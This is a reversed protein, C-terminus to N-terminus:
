GSSQPSRQKGRRAIAYKLKALALLTPKLEPPSEFFNLRYLRSSVGAPIALWNLPDYDFWDGNVPLVMHGKPLPGHLEEWLVKHKCVRSHQPHSPNVAPMRVVIRGKHYYETGVPLRREHGELWGRRQCLGSIDGRTLCTHGFTARLGRLIDIRRMNQHAQIYDIEEQLWKVRRRPTRVPRCLGMRRLQDKLNYLTVDPREFRSQFEALLHVRHMQHHNALFALEQESYALPARM